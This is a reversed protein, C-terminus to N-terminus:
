GVIALVPDYITGFTTNSPITDACEVLPVLKQAREPAFEFERYIKDIATCLGANNTTLKRL